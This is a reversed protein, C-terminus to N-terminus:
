GTRSKESNKKESRQHLGMGAQRLGGRKAWNSNTIAGHKRATPPSVLMEPIDRRKSKQVSCQDQSGQSM